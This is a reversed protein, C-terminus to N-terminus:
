PAVQQLPVFFPTMRVKLFILFLVVFPVNSIFQSVGVSTLLIQPIRSFNIFSVYKQFFGCNWVARMTVFMSVFFVITAWDMTRLIKLRKDSLLVIPLAAIISIYSLRLIEQGFFAGIIRVAVLILLLFLSIRSVRTLGGDMEIDNSHKIIENQFSKKYFLRLIIYTLLLNLVTPVFLYKAFVLFPDKMHTALAILLNQPNGIPSTVSGITVGFALALLLVKPDIRHRKGLYIMLPTGVVAVTDNM